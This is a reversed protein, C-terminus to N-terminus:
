RPPLPETEAAPPPSEPREEGEAPPTARLPQPGYEGLLIQVAAAVPIAVLAGLVGLLASGVLIALIVVLPPVNVTRRYVFPQLVNNEVQQYVVLVVLYVLTATPFDTFLTVLLILAGGITAGVLPILGFFFMLVSLPVAFPVGLITLTFFTVSANIAAITLAGAVYGATSRYIRLSIQRYRPARQPRVMALALGFIRRGDLLVFFTITLVTLLEFITTFAGFTVAQLAGAAEGLRQPLTSAQRQLQEILGYREDLERFTASRRLDQLYEPLDTALAEVQEVVPPIVLLGVGVVAAIILVYVVLIGAARPLPGRTLLDVAPGLAVALFLSIGLLLIVNRTVYLVYLLALFFVLTGLLRALQRTTLQEWVSM